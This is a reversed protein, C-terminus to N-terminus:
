REWIFVDQQSGGWAEEEVVVGGYLKVVSEFVSRAIVLGVRVSWTEAIGVM